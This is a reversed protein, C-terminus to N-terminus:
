VEPRARYALSIFLSPSLRVRVPAMSEVASVQDPNANRDSVMGTVGGPGSWFHRHTQNKTNLGFRSQSKRAERFVGYAGRVPHPVPLLRAGPRTRRGAQASQSSNQSPGHAPQDTAKAHLQRGIQTSSKGSSLAQAYSRRRHSGLCAIDGCVLRGSFVACGKLEVRPASPTLYAPHFEGGEQKAQHCCSAERVAPRVYRVDAAVTAASDIDLLAHGSIVRPHTGDGVVLACRAANTQAFHRRRLKPLFGIATSRVDSTSRTNLIETPGVAATNTASLSKRGWQAMPISMMMPRNAMGGAIRRRM